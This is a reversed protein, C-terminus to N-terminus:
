RCLLTVVTTPVIGEIRVTKDPFVTVRISLLELIRRREEPTAAPGAERVMAAIAAVQEADISWSPAAAALERELADRQQALQRRLQLLRAREAEIVEAPYGDTELEKRLLAALRQDCKALEADIAALRMRVQEAAAAQEVRKSELAQRITEPDALREVIANWVVDELESANVKTHCTCRELWPSMVSPQCRYYFVQRQHSGTGVLRYGAPCYALGSLIYPRKQNRRSRARNEDLVRQAAEWVEKSVIAPIQITIREEQPNYQVRLTGNTRTFKRKFWTLRGIYAPNRIMRAVTSPNWASTREGGHIPSGATPVGMATLRRAIEYASAHERTVWDFIQRVVEAETPEVEYAGRRKDVEVYKYGYPPRAGTRMLSGSLLRARKGRGSREVRLRNEILAVVSKTIRIIEGSLTNTDGGNVFEIRAGRRTLLHELTAQVYLERGLRDVDLCVIVDPKLQDLEAILRNIGPRDITTGSAADTYEAILDYGNKQCYKRIAELQTPISYNKAQEETSVRAYAVATPRRPVIQESRNM